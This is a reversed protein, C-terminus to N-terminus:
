TATNALPTYKLATVIDTSVLTGFLQAPDARYMPTGFSGPQVLLLTDRSMRSANLLPFGAIESFGAM